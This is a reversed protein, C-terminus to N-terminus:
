ESTRGDLLASRHRLIRRSQDIISLSNPIRSLITLISENRVVRVIPVAWGKLFLTTIAPPRGHRSEHAM